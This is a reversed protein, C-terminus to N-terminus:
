LQMTLAAFVLPVASVAMDAESPRPCTTALQTDHQQTSQEDADQTSQEVVRMADDPLRPTKAPGGEYPHFRGQSPDNSADRM